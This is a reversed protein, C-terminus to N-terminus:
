SRLDINYSLAHYTTGGAGRYYNPRLNVQEFGHKSYLHVAENNQRVELHMMRAGTRRAHVM